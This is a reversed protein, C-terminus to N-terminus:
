DAKKMGVTFTARPGKDDEVIMDSGRKLERGDVSIKWKKDLEKPIPNFTVSYASPGGRLEFKGPSEIDFNQQAVGSSAPNDTSISGSLKGNGGDVSIVIDQANESEMKTACALNLSALLLLTFLKM